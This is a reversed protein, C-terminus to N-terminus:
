NNAVSETADTSVTTDGGPLKVEFDRLTKTTDGQLELQGAAALERLRWGLYV